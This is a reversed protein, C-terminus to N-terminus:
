RSVVWAPYHVLQGNMVVIDAIYDNKPVEREQYM